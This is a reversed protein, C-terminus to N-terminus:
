FEKGPNVCRDTVCKCTHSRLNLLNISERVVVDRVRPPHERVSFLPKLDEDWVEGPPLSPVEPHEEKPISTHGTPNQDVDEDQLSEDAGSHVSEHGAVFVAVREVVSHFVKSPVSLAGVHPILNPVPNMVRRPLRLRMAGSPVLVRLLVRVKVGLASLLANRTSAEEGILPVVSTFNGLPGRVLKLLPPRTVSRGAM